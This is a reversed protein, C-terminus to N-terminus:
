IFIYQFVAVMTHCSDAAILIDVELGLIIYCYVKAFLLHSCFFFTHTYTHSQTMKVHM